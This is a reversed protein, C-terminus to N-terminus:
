TNPNIKPSRWNEPCDQIQAQRRGNAELTEAVMNAHCPTATGWMQLAYNYIIGFDKAPVNRAIIAKLLAPWSTKRM